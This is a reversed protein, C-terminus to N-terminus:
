FDFLLLLNISKSNKYNILNIESYYRNNLMFKFKSGPQKFLFLDMFLQLVQSVNIQM